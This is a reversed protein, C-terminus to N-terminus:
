DKKLHDALFTFIDQIKMTGDEGAQACTFHIRCKPCATLLREAGTQEAEQLREKQLAKSCASCEMWASTGCCLANEETRQMEVWELGPIQTLLRRPPDYLGSHRGLRCPDQFTVRRVLAPRFPAGAEPLKEALLESLHVVRFPLPGFYRPYDFRFVAYGEPCSFIVTEAGAAEITKLNRFALDLFTEEDGAWLADHGCCREEEAIVPEIRVRNLLTLVSRADELLSINLYRFTIEFFPLCGVFYYYPGKERTRGIEEAWATRRQRLVHRQLRAIAQPVGHHSEMPLNTTLRARRRFSRNFRAIDIGAPCRSNCAGCGLCAWVENKKLFLDTLGLAAQNIVAKPSFSPVERHVPCVADCNSCELCAATQETTLPPKAEPVPFFRPMDQPGEPLAPAKLGTLYETFDRVEAAFQAGESASIWKLRLRGEEIGLLRLYERTDEVVKQCKVNGELYHCDGIHCGAVLVGDAGQLFAELLFGSHIRGTCMVRILRVHSPYQLRSVGALDAGAYACWHCVFALIRPKLYEEM